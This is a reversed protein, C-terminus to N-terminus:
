PTYNNLGDHDILGFGLNKFLHFMFKKVTIVPELYIERLRPVLSTMLVTDGLAGTSKLIVREM